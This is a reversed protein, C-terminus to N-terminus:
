WEYVIGAGARFNGKSDVDGKIEGNFNMIRGFRYKGEIAVPGLSDSHVPYYAVGVSATNDLAAFPLPRQKVQIQSAGTQTNMLTIADTKGKYPAIEATAIVQLNKDEKIWDPLKLKEVVKEKEITIIKEPGPVSVRKIKTVTKIQQAENWVPLARIDPAKFFWGWIASVSVLIILPIVAYTLRM